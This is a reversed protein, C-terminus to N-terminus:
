RIGWILGVDDRAAGEETGVPDFGAAHLAALAARRGGVAPANRWHWEMVIARTDIAPWRPDEFIPWEGGEIDLKLVDVADVADFLDVCPVLVGPEDDAASRSEPSGDAIFRLPRDNTGVAARVERWEGALRNIAIVRRLLAANAPDPEFSCLQSVEWDEFAYIGFLGINGGADVVRLGGGLRRRIVDPMRYAERGFVEAVLDVDRTGHRVLFERGRRTRYRRTGGRLDGAVFRHPASVGAGAVALQQWRWRTRSTAVRRSWSRVTSGLAERSGRGM